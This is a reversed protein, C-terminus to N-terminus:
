HIAAPSDGCEESCDPGHPDGVAGCSPHRSVRWEGHDPQVGDPHLAIVEDSGANLGIVNNTTMTVDVSWSVISFDLQDRLLIELTVRM